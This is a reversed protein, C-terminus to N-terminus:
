TARWTGPVVEQVVFSGAMKDHWGQKRPDIAVWIVGLLIVFFSILLGIYRVLALGVGIPRGDVARLVRLHFPIMGPTRTNFSWFGVFYLAGLLLEFLEVAPNVETTNVSLDNITTTTARTFGGLAPSVLLVVIFIIIGDLLYAATRIGFGAYRLGPAPGDTATSPYGYGYAPGPPPPQVGYPVPPQGYGPPPPYPPPPPTGYQPPPPPYPSQPPSGYSPPQGGYAPPQETPPPQAGSSPPPGPAPPQPTSQPTPGPAGSPPLGAGGPVDLSPPPLPEQGGEDPGTTEV